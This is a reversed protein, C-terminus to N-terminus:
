SFGLLRGGQYIALAALYAFVTMYALQFLPWRWSNTERKVVAVTSLCQLSFVYFVMLSLCVLPTFVPSGDSHKQGRLVEALSDTDEGEDEVSYIIAMTSVFVERAAFSALLGINVKWDYGLPETVPELAHGVQGAYSEAINSEGEANKPYSVFFWLIISVGLIITGAKKLFLKARDLMVVLVTKWTPWRYPPMEMMLSPSEGRMLTKKFLFAFAFAGATGIFYVFFMLATKVWAAGPAIAAIMVFYVPLRASCSMWPAVLITVLRDKRSSISRAAMIGPIACAYSSLLPIFSQGHLGVKCMLRDLLFAARAMYGTGELLAVFFFLILIQPLFIVVGGVGAIMGNVILDRLTGAPLHANVTDGLWAFAADIGDMPLASLSFIAYFIGVMLLGLILGGWLPHLLVSDIRDTPTPRKEPKREIAKQVVKSLQIYREGVLREKWDHDHQALETRIQQAFTTIAQPTPEVNPHLEDPTSETLHLWAEARAFAEPCKQVNRIRQATADLARQFTEPLAFEWKPLPLNDRSMALRLKKLGKGIRAQTQVVTVGLSDELAQADISVGAHTADDIMNLVLIVPLGLELLQTTLFLHRELNSADAVCIIGDPRPTDNRRGMLVDQAIAEDPSHATLTYTGPLDILRIRHGHQSYCTGEKREVTVGPYNGVKQRMGTLGNFLTTKGSNPNGVVAFVKEARTSSTPTSANTLTNSVASM